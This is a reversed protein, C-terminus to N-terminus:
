SYNETVHAVVVPQNVLEPRSLLSVSAFFCDMDVHFLVKEGRSSVKRNKMRSVTMNVLDTKLTSLFHLRSNAFYQDIFGPATCLKDCVKPDTYDLDPNVGLDVDLVGDEEHDLEIEDSGLFGDISIQNPDKILPIIRYEDTISLMRNAKICDLIYELKVVPVRTGMKGASMQTTIVLTVKANFFNSIKAGHLHVLQKIEPLTFKSSIFGNFYINQCSLLKGTPQPRASLLKQNRKQLYEKHSSYAM